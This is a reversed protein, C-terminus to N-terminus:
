PQDAPPFGAWPPGGSPMDVPLYGAELPGGSPLDVPLYGAELQGGPVQGTPPQDAPLYGAPPQEAPPQEAPFQGGPPLDAPLDAPARQEAALSGPPSLVVASRFATPQDSVAQDPRGPSPPEQDPPPQDSPAQGPLAGEGSSGESLDLIRDCRAAVEPDHTALVLSGGNVAVEFMRALAIARAAPDLEATPEDAILLRPELALARAVATRQQQGGSLEEVLQDAHAELGLHALVERAARTAVAPSRGAARMAVEINEAATLLSVMGYGQLIVAVGIAPGAFSTLPKGDIYVEGATPRALGALLSLLTTKGSGSPGTVALSEGPEVIVDVNALIQQGDRVSRLGQAKLM